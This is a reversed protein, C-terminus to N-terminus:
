NPLANTRTALKQAHKHAPKKDQRDFCFMQPLFFRWLLLFSSGRVTSDTQPPFIFIQEESLLLYSCHPRTKVDRSVNCLSRAPHLSSKGM